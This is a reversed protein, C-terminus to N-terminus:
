GVCLESLQYMPLIGLIQTFRASQNSGMMGGYISVHALSFIEFAPLSSLPTSQALPLRSLGHHRRGSPDRGVGVGPGPCHDMPRRAPGETIWHRHDCLRQCADHVRAAGDDGVDFWHRLPSIRLCVKWMIRTVKEALVKTVRLGGLYSGLGMALAVSAFVVAQATPSKWSSATAGLMLMAIIKPADNTGRALSALGSSLWHITDLGITWGALGARHCRAPVDVVPWFAYTQFLTHTAARRIWRSSPVHPRCSM